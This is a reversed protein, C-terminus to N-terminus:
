GNGHARVKFERKAGDVLTDFVIRMPSPDMALTGEITFRLTFRGGAESSTDTVRIDSLRPEFLRITREVRTRVSTLDEASHSLSSIDPLGYHYLSETVETLEDPAEEITRRSNLLWEVDRLVGLRYARVSEDRTLVRDQTSRPDYDLLRDLISPTVTRESKAM